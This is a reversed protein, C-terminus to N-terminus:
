APCIAIRVLSLVTFRNKTCSRSSYALLKLSIAKAVTSGLGIARASANPRRRRPGKTNLGEMSMRQVPPLCEASREMKSRMVTVKSHMGQCSQQFGTKCKFRAVIMVVVFLL